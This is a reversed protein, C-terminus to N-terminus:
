PLPTGNRELIQKAQSYATRPKVGEAILQKATEELSQQFSLGSSKGLGRMDLASQIVGSLEEDSAVNRVGQSNFVGKSHGSLRVNDFYRGTEPDFVKLYSSPGAASGSHQLDVQFGKSKLKEALDQAKTQILDRGGNPLGSTDFLAMGAQRNLAQPTAANEGMKLLGGAIQPARAAAVMPGAMGAAEGLTQALGQQVPATLGKQAMWDSGGMPNAPVPVGAKRLAWAIGDVPASVNSAISNSASQAFDRLSDALGAM